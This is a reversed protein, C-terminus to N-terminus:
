KKIGELEMRVKYQNLKKNDNLQGGSGSRASMKTEKEKEPDKDWIIDLKDHMLIPKDLEIRELIRLLKQNESAKFKVVKENTQKIRVVPNKVSKKRKLAQSMPIIEENKGYTKKKVVGSFPM